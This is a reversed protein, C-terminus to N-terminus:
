INSVKTQHRWINRRSRQIKIQSIPIFNNSNNYKKLIESNMCITMGQEVFKTMKSKFPELHEPESTDIVTQM